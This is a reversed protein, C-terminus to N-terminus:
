DRPGHGGQAAAVAVIRKRMSAVVSPVNVCRGWQVIRALKARTTELHETSRKAQKKIEGFMAFDLPMFDPSRSPIRRWSWGLARMAARAPPSGHRPDNDMCVTARTTGTVRKLLKGVGRFLAAAAKGDWRGAPAKVVHFAGRVIVGAVLMKPLTTRQNSNPRSNWTKTPDSRHRYVKRVTQSQAYKRQKASTPFPVSTEDIFVVHGWRANLHNKCWEHRKRTDDGDYIMKGRM